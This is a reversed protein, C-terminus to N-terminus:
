AEGAVRSHHELDQMFVFYFCAEYGVKLTRDNFGRGCLRLQAGAPLSVIPGLEVGEDKIRLIQFACVEKNLVRMAACSCWDSTLM